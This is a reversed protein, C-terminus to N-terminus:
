SWLVAVAPGDHGDLVSRAGAIIEEARRSDSLDLIHPGCVIAVRPLLTAVGLNVTGADIADSLRGLLRDADATIVRKASEALAVSGLGDVVAVRGSGNECFVRYFDNRAVVELEHEAMGLAAAAAHLQAPEDVPERSAAGRELAVAGTAVARVLGERAEFHTEVRVTQPAAGAEVCAREAERAVEMTEGNGAHRAVECRVLSLAAGISSLIEPHEPRVYPRGLRRAVEPALATGAGGLAVVPVDPGFDHTRAADAVAQAIKDVTRDLLARAAEEPSRRMRRGLAAFGALAAARARESAATSRDAASRADAVAGDAPAAVDVVGLAHAACTATLAHRRGAPTTLIAYQPPDGPRPSVLEVEAGALEEPEAYCAYPLGAVHASRPGAEEVKRRGLRGLSGGAAGVVWSDVSRISTPRGMVRLTRLVTRGGKVVSVNSSTGGCELVIGDTLALQHLAAAVGAAPGSGITFSPARRFAELSMAGGDGRLVLLPVDIGAEHLVREVIRATREVLPLIAANVAASITRTELGYTGTLEHGACVPLGRERAREAVAREQEPVDVAFAGSVALATCGAGQLRDLTADVHAEDLGRTGDLFAHETHLVRGPALKLDGVQTRKRALRLEPEAGIGIVGVPAVDGELLANMAQTTSYAVLEVRDRDPGLDALLARLVDAVGETVGGAAAHSTPVVAHARLQLPHATLAVAKTFTGGVDVGVRIGSM